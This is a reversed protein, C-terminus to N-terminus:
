IYFVNKLSMTKEIGPLILNNENTECLLINTYFLNICTFICNDYKYLIIMRKNKEEFINKYFKSDQKFDFIKM